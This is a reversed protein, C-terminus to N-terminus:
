RRQRWPSAAMAALLASREDSTLKQLRQRLHACLRDLVQIEAGSVDDFRFRLRRWSFFLATWLELAPVATAGTEGIEDIVRHHVIAAEHLGGAVAAGDIFLALDATDEWRLPDPLSGFDGAAVNPFWVPLALLPRVTM